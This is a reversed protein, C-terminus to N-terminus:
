RCFIQGGALISADPGYRALAAMAEDVSRAPIYEFPTM